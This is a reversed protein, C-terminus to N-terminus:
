SLKRKKEKMKLIKTTVKMKQNLPNMKRTVEVDILQTINWSIQSWQPGKQRKTLKVDYLDRREVKETKEEMRLIQTTTKM